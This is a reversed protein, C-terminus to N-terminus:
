EKSTQSKTPENAVMQIGYNQGKKVFTFEGKFVGKDMINQQVMVIFDSVFADYEKGTRISKLTFTVSSRGRGCRVVRMRDTFRHNDKWEIEDFTWGTCSILNGTKKDFPIQYQGKPM